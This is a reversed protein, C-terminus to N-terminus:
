YIHFLFMFYKDLIRYQSMSVFPVSSEYYTLTMFSTLILLDCHIMSVFGVGIRHGLCQFLILQCTPLIQNSQTVIERSQM